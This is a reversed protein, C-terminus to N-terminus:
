QRILLKEFCIHCSKSRDSHGANRMAESVRRYTNMLDKNSNTRVLFKKVYDLKARDTKLTKRDIKKLSTLEMDSARLNELLQHCDGVLDTKKPSSAKKSSTGKKKPSDTPDSFHSELEKTM